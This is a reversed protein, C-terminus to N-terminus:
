SGLESKEDNQNFKLLELDMEVKPFRYDWGPLISMLVHVYTRQNM